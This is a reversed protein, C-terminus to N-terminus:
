QAVRQTDGRTDGGAPAAPARMEVPARGGKDSYYKEVVAPSNGAARAARYTGGSWAARNTFYKRLEYFGKTYTARDLGKLRLWGNLRRFMRVGRETKHPAPVLFAPDGAVGEVTAGRVARLEALVGAPIEVNRGRSTKTRWHARTALALWWTGEADQEVWSWEAASVENNRLGLFAGLLFAAYAGPDVERLKPYDAGIAEIVARPPENYQVVAGKLKPARMFGALDPLTLDNYAGMIHAAFLSRAQRLISNCSVLARARVIEDDNGAARMMAQQFQWVTHAGLQDSSGAPDKGAHRLLLQMVAVARRKTRITAAAEYAAFVEPLGSWGQRTRLGQLDNWKEGKVMDIIVKARKRAEALDCTELARRFRRGNRKVLVYLPGKKVSEADASICRQINATGTAVYRRGQTENKPTNMQKHTTHGQTDM